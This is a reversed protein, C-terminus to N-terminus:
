LGSVMERTSVNDLAGSSGSRTGLGSCSAGGNNGGGGVVLLALWVRRMAVLAGLLLVSAQRSWIEAGGPSLEILDLADSASLGVEEL